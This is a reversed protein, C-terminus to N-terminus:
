LRIRCIQTAWDWVNVTHKALPPICLTWLDTVDYQLLLSYASTLPITDLHFVRWKQKKICRKIGYRDREREVILPIYILMSVSSNITKILVNMRSHDFKSNENSQMKTIFHRDNRTLAFWISKKKQLKRGSSNKTTFFFVIKSPLM